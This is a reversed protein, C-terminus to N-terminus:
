VSEETGERGLGGQGVGRPGASPPVNSLHALRCQQVQQQLWSEILNGEDSNAVDILADVATVFGWDGQIPRDYQDWGLFRGSIRVVDGRWEMQYGHMKCLYVLDFRIDSADRFHVRSM